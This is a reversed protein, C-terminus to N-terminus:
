HHTSQGHEKQQRQDILRLEQKLLYLTRSNEVIIIAIAFLLVLVVLVASGRNDGSEKLGRKLIM